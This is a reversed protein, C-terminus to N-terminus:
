LLVGLFTQLLSSVFRLAADHVFTTSSVPPLRSETTIVVFKGYGDSHEHEHLRQIGCCHIGVWRRAHSVCLHRKEAPSADPSRMLPIVDGQM